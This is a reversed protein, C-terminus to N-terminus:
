VAEALQESFDLAADKVATIEETTPKRLKYWKGSIKFFLINDLRCNVPKISFRAKELETEPSKREYLLEKIFSDDVKVGDCWFGTENEVHWYCKRGKRDVAPLFNGYLREPEGTAGEKVQYVVFLSLNEIQSGWSRSRPEWGEGEESAGRRKLEALVSNKFSYDNRCTLCYVRTLDRDKFAAGGGTKRIYENQSSEWILRFYKNRSSYLLFSLTALSVETVSKGMMSALEPFRHPVKKKPRKTEWLTGAEFLPLQEKAPKKSKKPM